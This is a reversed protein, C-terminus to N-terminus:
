CHSKYNRRLFYIAENPPDQGSAGDPAHTQLRTQPRGGLRPQGSGSVGSPLRLSAQQGRLKGFLTRSRLASIQSASGNRTYFFTSQPIGAAALLYKLRHHSKLIVIAQVKLRTGSEEFGVNKLHVNEAELRAIQRGLKEEETLRKPAASGKPRGKSKPKM